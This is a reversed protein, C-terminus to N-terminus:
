PGGPREKYKEKLIRFMWEYGIKEYSEGSMLLNDSQDMKKRFHSKLFDGDGRDLIGGSNKLNNIFYEIASSM